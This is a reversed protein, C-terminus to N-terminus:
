DGLYDCMNLHATSVGTRIVPKYKSGCGKLGNPGRMQCSINEIKFLLNSLLRDWDGKLTMNKSLLNFIKISDGCKLNRTRNRSTELSLSAKTGSFFNDM